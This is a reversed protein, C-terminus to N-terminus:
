SSDENRMGEKDGIVTAYAGLINNIQESWSYRKRAVERARKGLLAARDKHILLEIVADSFAEITDAELFHIQDVIDLGEAGKSTSVIAKALMMYEVLKVRTGSGFFVPAVTVDAGMVFPRPDKVEGTFNVFESKESALAGPPNRGVMVLLVEGVVRRVRPMIENILLSAAHVNPPHNFSGLFLVTPHEFHHAIIAEPLADEVCNPVVVVRRPALGYLRSLQMADTKSCVFILPAIRAAIKDICLVIWLLGPTRALIFGISNSELTRDLHMAKLERVFVYEVGHEDLIFPKGLIRLLLMFPLLYPYEFQVLDARLMRKLVIPSWLTTSFITLNPEDLLVTPKSGRISLKAPSFVTVQNGREAVHRSISLMRQRAGTTPPYVEIPSLIVLNMTDHREGPDWREFRSSTCVWDDESKSRQKDILRAFLYKSAQLAFRNRKLDTDKM